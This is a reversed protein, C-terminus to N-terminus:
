QLTELSLSFKNVNFYFWILIIDLETIKVFNKNYFINIWLVCCIIKLFGLSITSFRFGLNITSKAQSIIWLGTLCNQVFGYQNWHIFFFIYRKFQKTDSLKKPTSFIKRWSYTSNKKFHYQDFGKKSFKSCPQFFSVFNKNLLM